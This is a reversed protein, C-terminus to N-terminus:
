LRMGDFVTKKFKENDNHVSKLLEFDLGLEEILNIMALTDKPLCMGAYGRLDESVDLYLDVAKGTKLYTDKIKSYDCNLRKCIEYFNNAFTVRLAAFVNNYYKLLEAETPGLQVAHEPLSAHCSKIVSFIEKDETGVALLKHSHIFDETACRERLFEPVFCINRNGTQLIKNSTFGPTVTSRIAIIGDYGIECLENVVLDVVSTNCAGEDGLPTPVCIFTAATDKVDKISTKLKLDHVFVKHGVFEFGNKNATGIAGLGIIGLNM